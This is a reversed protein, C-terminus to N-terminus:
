SKLGCVLKDHSDMANMKRMAAQVEERGPRRGPPPQAIDDWLTHIKGTCHEKHLLSLLTLM